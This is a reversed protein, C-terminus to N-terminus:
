SFCESLSSQILNSELRFWPKEQHNYLSLAYNYCFRAFGLNQNMKTKERNNLKLEVKIGYM